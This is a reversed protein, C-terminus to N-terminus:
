HSSLYAAAQENVLDVIDQMVLFVDQLHLGWQPTLDGGIDDARPDAPDGNVTVELYGFGNKNVCEGSVLGPTSVFPTSITANSVWPRGAVFVSGLESKGGALSSPINCAAVGGDDVRGFLSNPPPPSTVRFSEWSLFCSLQNRARCLPVNKFEGGVDKGAPVSVAAGALYAAILRDRAEPLPDIEEKILRSLQYSGQSHGILVVGRGNNDHSMYQKFADLVDGYATEGVSADQKAGGLAATMGTLTRQRYVPAFVRCVSGLRAAQALASAGEQGPSPTLDSNPTPDTSITPYVYFCDIKPDDAKTWPQTTLTGDAAVTTVDLGSDCIDDTDPRCLWNSTGAYQTSEYGPYLATAAGKAALTTATGGAAGNSSAGVASTSPISNADLTATATDSGSCAALMAIAVMLALKAGSRVVMAQDLNSM